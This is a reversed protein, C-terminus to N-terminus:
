PQLGVEYSLLFELFRSVELMDRGIFRISHADTREVQPLYALLQSPRYSKFRVDLTVPRELRWPRFEARRRVAAAVREEILRAAAAPTLTRASHFGYNWKVEVTEVRGLLTQAEAVAADDGTVVLVPVGFEGAIAASLGAEPVSRGNVRVDALNASSLTHARVGDPNTTGAHYGILVAGMFTSDLGEMMMLPRPWSRVVTVDDPLLELLLNQGNGHSDSIVIEGVGAARAGRIAALVEQTMFERFREYEFGGPGLQEGTVVGALGEMDASIYLKPQVSQAALTQSGLLLCGVLAQWRRIRGDFRM